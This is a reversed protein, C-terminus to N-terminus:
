PEIITDDYLRMRYRNILFSTELSRLAPTQCKIESIDVFEHFPIARVVYVPPRTFELSNHNTWLKRRRQMEDSLAYELTEKALDRIRTRENM